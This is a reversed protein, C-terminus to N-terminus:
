DGRGNTELSSVIRNRLIGLFDSRMVVEDGPSLYMWRNWINTPRFIVGAPTGSLLLTGPPLVGSTPLLSVEAGAYSYRRDSTRFIQSVIERPPWIMSTASARQRLRGNVYLSLTIKPLFRDLDRPIVLLNGVPLFGPRSKADAFGTVGMEGGLEIERVLRWRDTFDNCLLIGMAPPLDADPAAGQLLAFCLEAEYDLLVADGVPVSSASPTAEVVKPFLFPGEELSVEAAHERYNLGTGVHPARTDLPIELSSAAVERLPLGSGAVALIADYGVERFLAAPDDEPRGLAANLDMGEIRGDRYERVLLVRLSGDDRYRALTLAEAPDAIPITALTTPDLREDFLPRSTWVSTAAFVALALLAFLLAFRLWRRRRTRFRDPPRSSRGTM